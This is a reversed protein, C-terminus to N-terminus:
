ELKYEFDKCYFSFINEEEESVKYKIYEQQYNSIDTISIHLHSIVDLSGFKLDQVGYFKLILKNNYRENEYLSIILTNSIYGDESTKRYLKISDYINFAYYHKIFDDLTDSKKM